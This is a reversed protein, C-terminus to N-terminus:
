RFLSDAVNFVAVVYSNGTEGWGSRWFDYGSCQGFLSITQM